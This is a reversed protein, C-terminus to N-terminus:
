VETPPEEQGEWNLPPQQKGNKQKELKTLVREDVFIPSKMLTAIAVADSPRSDVELLKGNNRIILKAYFTSNQLDSVIIRELKAGMGKIVNEILDHTMPRPPKKDKIHRDIAVAEWIGIVIPFYRTGDIEKLLIIQEESTESIVIRALEMPIM